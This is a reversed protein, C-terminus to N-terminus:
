HSCKIAFKLNDLMLSLMSILFRLFQIVYKQEPLSTLLGMMKSIDPKGDVFMGALDFGVDQGELTGSTARPM